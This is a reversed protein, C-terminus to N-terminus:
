GELEIWDSIPLMKQEAASYRYVRGIPISNGPTSIPVGILGGTDFNEITNMAAKLSTGTLEKGEELVRRASELLIMATIMGQMYGTPQYDPRMARITDLMPAEETDYYYRYPMVGLFGDAVDGSDKWISSDMSWFTGMFQTELGMQRAQNMFEPLPALVYGHFIVYDPRWRRLKLVETSVDVATPPTIIEGAISLGLGEATKRSSEIPDRGFESDSNVLVIQAGPKERAIYEMLISIMESYDPGPIFINPYKEPDNLETAFSAGGMLISDARQLEPAITKAFATSDGYYLHIEDQSTLKNFVAVSTDPKYGTDEYALRVTRGAIGGAENVIRIYDQMGKEIAIGAFAFVGTLPLSGGIVLEGADARASRASFGLGGALATAGMIQMLSRRSLETM